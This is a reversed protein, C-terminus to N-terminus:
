RLRLWERLPSSRLEPSQMADLGEPMRLDFDKIVRAATFTRWELESFISAITPSGTRDNILARGWCTPPLV